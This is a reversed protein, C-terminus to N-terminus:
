NLMQLCPLMEPQMAPELYRRPFLWSLWGRREGQRSLTPSGPEFLQQRSSSPSAPWAAAVPPPLATKGGAAASANIRISNAGPAGPLKDNGGSASIRVSRGAASATPM